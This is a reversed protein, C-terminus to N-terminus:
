RLRVSERFRPGSQSDGTAHRNQHLYARARFSGPHFAPIDHPRQLGHGSTTFEYVFKTSYTDRKEGGKGITFHAAPRSVYTQVNGGQNGPYFPFPEAPDPPAK